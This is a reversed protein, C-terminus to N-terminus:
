SNIIEKRVIISDSVYEVFDPNHYYTSGKPIICEMILSFYYTEDKAYDYTCFSHFGNEIIHSDFLDSLKIKLPKDLDYRKGKEYIFGRLISIYADQILLSEHCTKYCVIDEEAILPEKFDDNIIFCM